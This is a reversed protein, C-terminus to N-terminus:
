NILEMSYVIAEMQRMLKRKKKNPNYVYAEVTVVMDRTSDVVSHSIFPGGMFGNELEWLGRIEVVESGNKKIDFTIPPYLEATTMYSGPRTGETYKKLFENRKEILKETHLDYINEYPYQYVFVVQSTRATEISLSVFNETELDVNYGRPIALDINFRNIISTINQDKSEKFVNMIRERDYNRISNLIKHGENELLEIMEPKSPANVRVVIQPKAWVNKFYLIEPKEVDGSINLTIISRHQQFLKDFAGTNIHVVDMLPEPQPLAPYEKELNKRLVNGVSGKWNENDLVVLVEGTAGSVNPLLM